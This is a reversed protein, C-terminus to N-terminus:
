GEAEVPEEFSEVAEELRNYIQLSDALKLQSFMDWLQPCKARVLKLDGGIHSTWMKTFILADVFKPDCVVLPRCDVVINKVGKSIISKIFFKFEIGNSFTARGLNLSIIAPSHASQQKISFNNFM